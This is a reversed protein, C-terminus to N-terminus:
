QDRNVRERESDEDEFSNAIFALCGVVGIALLGYAAFLLYDPV